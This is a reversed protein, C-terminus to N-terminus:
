FDDNIRLFNYDGAFIRILQYIVKKCHEEIESISWLYGDTNCITYDCYHAYDWGIFITGEVKPLKDHTGMFTIGGHTKIVSKLEDNAYKENIRIYALPHGVYHCIYYEFFKFTGIKVIGFELGNKKISYNKVKKQLEDM